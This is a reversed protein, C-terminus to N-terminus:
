EPQTHSSDCFPKNGSRGCRCLTVRNRVEYVRGDEGEIEIGGKVWLPGDVKALPDYVVGISQELKPEISEGKKDHLILRGAPCDSTEQTAIAKKKPDDSQRTLDWVGGARDCFRASACLKPIDTLTLEPGEVPPETDNEVPEHSATETGDFDM